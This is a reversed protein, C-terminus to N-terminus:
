STGLVLVISARTSNVKLGQRLGNRLSRLVLLCCWFVQGVRLQGSIALFIASWFTSDVM